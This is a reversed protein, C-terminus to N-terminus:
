KGIIHVTGVTNESHPISITSYSIKVAKDDNLAFLHRSWQEIAM